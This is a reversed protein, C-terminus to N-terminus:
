NIIQQYENDDKLNLSNISSIKKDLTNYNKIQNMFLISGKQLENEVGNSLDSFQNQNNQEM